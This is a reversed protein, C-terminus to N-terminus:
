PPTGPTTPLLLAPPPNLMGRVMGARAQEAEIFHKEFPGYCPGLYHHWAPSSFGRWVIEAVHDLHYRAMVNCVTVLGDPLHIVPVAGCYGTLLPAMAFRREATEALNGHLAAKLLDELASCSFAVRKSVHPAGALSCDYPLAGIHFGITYLILNKM